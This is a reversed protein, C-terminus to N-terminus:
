TSKEFNLNFAPVPFSGLGAITAKKWKGEVNLIKSKRLQRRCTSSHTIDSQLIHLDFTKVTALKNMMCFKM